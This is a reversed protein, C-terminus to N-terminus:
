RHTRSCTLWPTLIMFVTCVSKCYLVPIPVNGWVDWFGAWVSQWINRRVIGWVIHGWVSQEERCIGRAVQVEALQSDCGM